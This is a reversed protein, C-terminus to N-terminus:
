ETNAPHQTRAMSSLVNIRAARVAISALSSFPHVVASAVRECYDRLDDFTAYCRGDLDDLQGDLMAHFHAADVDFRAAVESTRTAGKSRWGEADRFAVFGDLRKTFYTRVSSETYGTARALKAFDVLAGAREIERLQILLQLQKDSLPEDM